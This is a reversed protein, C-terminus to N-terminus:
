PSLVIDAQCVFSKLNERRRTDVTQRQTGSHAYSNISDGCAQAAAGRDAESEVQEGAMVCLGDTGHLM